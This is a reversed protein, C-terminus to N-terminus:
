SKVHLREGFMGIKLIIIIESRIPVASSFFKFTQQLNFLLYFSM